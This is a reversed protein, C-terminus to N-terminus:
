MDRREQAGGLRKDRRERIRKTTDRGTYLREWSEMLAREAEILSKMTDTLVDSLQETLITATQRMEARLVAMSDCLMASSVFNDKVTSEM